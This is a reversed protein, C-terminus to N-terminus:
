VNRFIIQRSLFGNQWGFQRSGIRFIHDIIDRESSFKASEENELSRVLNVLSALQPWHMPRAELYLADVPIALRENALLELEWPYIAHPNTLASDAGDEPADVLYKLAAAARGSQFARAAWIADLFKIIPTSALTALLVARIYDVNEGTSNEDSRLRQDMM